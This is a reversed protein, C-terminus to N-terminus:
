KFDSFEQVVVRADAPGLTKGNALSRDEPEPTVITGIPQLNPWIVIGAVVLALVAVAGIVAFQQRRAAEQRKKRLEDRKSM